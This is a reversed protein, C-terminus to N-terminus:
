KEAQRIAFLAVFVFFFTFIFAKKMSQITIREFIKMGEVFSVVEERNNDDQFGLSEGHAGGDKLDCSATKKSSQTCFYQLQERTSNLMSELGESKEVMRDLAEVVNISNTQIIAQLRGYDNWLSLLNLFLAASLLCVILFFKPDEKNM